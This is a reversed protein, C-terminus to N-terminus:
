KTSYVKVEVNISKFFIFFYHAPLQEMLTMTGMFQLKKRRTLPKSLEKSSVDLDKLSTLDPLQKLDESLFDNINEIGRKKLLKIIVQPLKREQNAQLRM